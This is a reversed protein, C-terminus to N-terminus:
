RRPTPPPRALRRRTPLCVLPLPPPRGRSVGGEIAQRAAAGQEAEHTCGGVVGMQVAGGGQAICTVCPKAPMVSPACEGVGSIETSGELGAHSCAVGRCM